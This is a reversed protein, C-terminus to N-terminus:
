TRQRSGTPLQPPSAGTRSTGHPRPGLIAAPSTRKQRGRAHVGRLGAKRMLRTVRRRGYRRRPPMARRPGRTATTPRGAGAICRRSGSPSPRIKGGEGRSHGRACAYYDSKFIRVMNCLLAEPFCAKEADDFRFRSVPRHRDGGSRFPSGFAERAKRLIEKKQRLVKAERRLDKKEEIALGERDGIDVEAENVWKRLTEISVDLDRAIKSVPHKEDSSQM